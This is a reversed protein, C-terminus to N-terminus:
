DIIKRIDFGLLCKIKNIEPFVLGTKADQIYMLFIFVRFLMFGSPHQQIHVHIYICTKLRLSVFVLRPTSVFCLRSHVHCGSWCLLREQLVALASRKEHGEILLVRCRHLLLLLPAPLWFVCWCLLM